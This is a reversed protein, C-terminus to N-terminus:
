GVRGSDFIPGSCVVRFMIIPFFFQDWSKGSGRFKKDLEAVAVRQHDVPQLGRSYKLALILQTWM